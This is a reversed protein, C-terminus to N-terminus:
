ANWLDILAAISDLWPLRDADTLPIGHHMKDVNAQPHLADGEQFRWHLRGALMAAVTTKGSGSVGMVILIIPSTTGAAEENVVSSM